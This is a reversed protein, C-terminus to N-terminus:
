LGVQIGVTILKLPPLQLPNNNEPDFGDFGTITLLNQANIYLRCDQFKVRKKWTTPLQWSLSINKLRMYSANTYVFDSLGILSYFNPDQSFRLTNTVDGPKQWRTM